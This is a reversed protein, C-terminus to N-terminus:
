MRFVLIDEYDKCLDTEQWKFGTEVKLGYGIM